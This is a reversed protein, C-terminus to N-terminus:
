NGPRCTEVGIDQIDPAAAPDNIHERLDSGLDELIHNTHVGRNLLNESDEEFGLHHLGVVTRRDRHLVPAGSSGTETDCRHEFDTHEGGQGIVDDNKINCNELSVQQPVGGPHQIIILKDDTQAAVPDFSLPQREMVRALRVLSYDLGIDCAVIDTLRTFDVDAAATDYDFEVIASNLEVPGSICHENTLLLEATVLFGTCTYIKQDPAKFSLKAISDGIAQIWAAHVTVSALENDGVITLRRPSSRGIAVEAIRIKPKAVANSIVRVEVQNGAFPDTWWSGTALEKATISALLEDSQFIAVQWTDDAAEDDLRQLHLRLFEADTYSIPQVFVVGTGDLTPFLNVAVPDVIGIPRLVASKDMPAGQALTAQTVFVTAALVVGRVCVPLAKM